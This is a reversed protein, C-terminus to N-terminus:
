PRGRYISAISEAFNNREKHARMLEAAERVAPWRDRVRELDSLADELAQQDGEDTRRWPWKV